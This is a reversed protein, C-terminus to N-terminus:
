CQWLTDDGLADRVMERVRCWKEDEETVLTRYREMDAPKTSTEDMIPDWPVDSDGMMEDEFGKLAARARSLEMLRKALEVYREERSLTSYDAVTEIGPKMKENKTEM